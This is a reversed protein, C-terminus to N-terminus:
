AAKRKVETQMMPDEDAMLIDGENAEKKDLSAVEEDFYIQMMQDEGIVMIGGENAEISGVHFGVKIVDLVAMTEPDLAFVAENNFDAVYLIGDSLVVDTHYGGMVGHGKKILENNLKSVKDSEDSEDQLDIRFVEGSNEGLEDVTGVFAYRGDESLTLKPSVQARHGSPLPISIMDDSDSPDMVHLYAQKDSDHGSSLVVLKGDPRMALGTPNNGKPLVIKDIRLSMDTLDRIEIAGGTAEKRGNDFDSVAVYAVGTYEDALVSSVLNSDTIPIFEVAEVTEVAEISEDTEIYADGPIVYFLGSEGYLNNGVVIRHGSALAVAGNLFLNATSFQDDTKFVEPEEGNSVIALGNTEVPFVISRTGVVTKADQEIILASPNVVNELFTPSQANLSGKLPPVYVSEDGSDLATRPHQTQAETGAVCGPGFFAALGLSAVAGSLFHRKSPDVAPTGISTPRFFSLAAHSMYSLM